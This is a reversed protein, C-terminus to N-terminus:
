SDSEVYGFPWIQPANALCRQMFASSAADDLEQGRALIECSQQHFAKAEDAGDEAAGAIGLPAVASTCLMLAILRKM